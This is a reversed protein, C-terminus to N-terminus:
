DSLAQAYIARDEPHVRSLWDAHPMQLPECPMALLSAGEASFSVTDTAFDLDFVGQHAAGIADLSDPDLPAAHARMPRPIAALGEGAAIALALLVAGVAAFGGIAAPAAINDGFGGFAAVASAIAVLAFVVANPAAIRAARVGARGRAVLHYAITITGLLVCVDAALAAGPLGLFSALALIALGRLVWELTRDPLPWTDKLPVLMDTLRLGAVLAFCAIMASLGYPGGIGTALSADFIGTTSLRQFLILGLFIATWQPAGHGTMVAEGAIILVAAAILGAVAAFFIALQRNHAAIAPETWALLSPPDRTNLVRLALSATTAPPITVRFTKRGYANTPEVNVGGDSSATQLIEPRTSAPFLRLGIDPWPGAQLIRTIPRAANNTVTVAYWRSGDHEAEGSAHYPLLANKLELVERDSAFDISRIAPPAAAFATGTAFLVFALIRAILGGTNRM